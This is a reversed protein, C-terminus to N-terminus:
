LVVHAQLVAPKNYSACVLPVLTLAPLAFGQVPNDDALM